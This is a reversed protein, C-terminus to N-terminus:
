LVVALPRAGRFSNSPYFWGPMHGQVAVTYYGEGTVTAPTPTWYEDENRGVAPWWDEDQWFLYATTSVAAEETAEPAAEEAVTEEVAPEETSTEEGFNRNSALESDAGPAPDEEAYAICLSMALVMAAALLLIRTLTKKM